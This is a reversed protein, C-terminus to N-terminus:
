RTLVLPKTFTEGSTTKLTCFYLGSAVKSGDFNVEHPLGKKANGDFLTAIEKGAIDFVSLRAHSDELLVFRLTTTQTFPNPFASLQEATTNDADDIDGGTKCTCEGLVDGHSLHACLSHPSNCNAQINAEVTTCTALHCVYVKNSNNGVLPLSGTDDIDIVTVTVEDTSECGNADTVTLTYTTTVTPCVDTTASNPDSLGETPAWSYSYPPTGGSANGELTDCPYPDPGPGSDIIVVQDSGADATLDSTVTVTFSCTATNGVADTAQFSVTTTGVQFVQGSEPGNTVIVNVGTCGSIETPPPYNVVAGCIGPDTTTYINEPCQLEIACGFTLKVIWMDNLGHNDTVDGDNSYTDGAVIFGGDSVQFIDYAGDNESGGMRKDWLTNGNQDLKVVWVDGVGFTSTFGAVVYGGDATQIASKAQDFSPGGLSKEWQINGSGDLKVVWMDDTGYNISVDYNDSTTLGAVLYGGDLTQLISSAVDGNFEASTGGLSKDWLLNGNQDLKVVWMDRDGHNGNVDGNNSFSIGCVIYGEDDTQQIDTASDFNSGGLAKQWILSGAADLKIIWFDGDGHQGTIDGTYSQSYGAVVYGGDITQKISSASENGPGGYSKEWQINGAPDLKVIWYDRGGLNTGVDGDNSESSGAIIYGGDSTQRVTSAGDNASGGLSRQWQITGTPDLKVVWSDMLGHNTIVDGDTSSTGGTLIYGGDTTQMISTCIDDESGGLAKQWQIEPQALINTAGFLSLCLAMIITNLNKM